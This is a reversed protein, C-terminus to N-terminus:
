FYKKTRLRFVMNKEDASKFQYMIQKVGSRTWRGTEDWVDKPHLLADFKPKGVANM